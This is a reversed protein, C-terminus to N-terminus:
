ELLELILEDETVERVISKYEVGTWGVLHTWYVGRKIWKIIKMIYPLIEGTSGDWYAIYEGYCDKILYYGRKM